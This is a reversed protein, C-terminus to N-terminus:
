KIREYVEITEPERGTFPTTMGPYYMERKFTYADVKKYNEMIKVFEPDYSFYDIFEFSRGDFQEGTLILLVDPQMTNFDEVMMKTYRDKMAQVDEIAYVMEDKKGDALKNEEFLIVPLFWLSTFRSAHFGNDYIALQHIIESTDHYFFYRCTENNDPCYKDMALSLPLQKFSEHTVMQYPLGRFTLLMFWCITISLFFSLPKAIFRAAFLYLASSFAMTFFVMYPIRHYNLGKGQAWYTILMLVCFGALAYVARKHGEEQRSEYAAFVCLACLMTYATMEPIIIPHRISTYFTIVDLLVIFLYDSFFTLMVAAYGLVGVALFLFDSHFVIKFDRTKAFRWILLVTPLLGYHPKILVGITGLLLAPIKLSNPVAINKLFCIQVLTFPLLGCIILHDRDGFSTTPVIFLAALGSMLLLNRMFHDLSDIRRLLLASLVFSAAIIILTYFFQAHYLTIDLARSALVVPIYIIMSMPPNPDYYAETVKMGDLIREAFSILIAIDSSLVMAYLSPIYLFGLHALLLLWLAGETKTWTRHRDTLNM